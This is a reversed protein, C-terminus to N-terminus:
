TNKPLDAPEKKKNQGHFKQPSKKCPCNKQKQPWYCNKRLKKKRLSKVFISAQKNKRWLDTNFCIKKAPFILFFNWLIKIIKAKSHFKWLDFQSRRKTWKQIKKKVRKASKRKWWFTKRRLNWRTTTPKERNKNELSSKLRFSSEEM